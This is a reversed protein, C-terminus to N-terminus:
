VLESGLQVRLAGTRLKRIHFDDPQPVGIDGMDGVAGLRQYDRGFRITPFAGLEGIAVGIAVSRAPSGDHEDLM